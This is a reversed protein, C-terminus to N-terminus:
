AEARGAFIQGVSVAAKNVEKVRDAMKGRIYQPISGRVVYEKVPRGKHEAKRELAPIILGDRILDAMAMSVEPQRMDCAREIARSTVPTGIEDAHRDLAVLITATTRKIGAASVLTAIDADDQETLVIALPRREM